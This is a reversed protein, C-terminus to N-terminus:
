LISLPFFLVLTIQLIIKLYKTSLPMPISDPKSPLQIHHKSQIKLTGWPWRNFASKGDQPVIPLSKPFLVQKLPFKSIRGLILDKSGSENEKQIGHCLCSQEAWWHESTHYGAEGYVGLVLLPFLYLNVYNV